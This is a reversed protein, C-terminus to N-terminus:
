LGFLHRANDDDGYNSNIFANDPFIKIYKVVSKKNYM